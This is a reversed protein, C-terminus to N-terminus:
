TNRGDHAVRLRACVSESLQTGMALDVISVFPRGHAHKKAGILTPDCTTISPRRNELGRRVHYTM